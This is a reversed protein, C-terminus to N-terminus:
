WRRTSRTWATRASAWKELVGLRFNEVLVDADAALRELLERDPPHSLNLTVTRKNRAIV